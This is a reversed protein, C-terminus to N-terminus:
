YITVKAEYLINKDDYDDFWLTLQFEDSDIQVTNSLEYIDDPFFRDLETISKGQVFDGLSWPINATIDDKINFLEELLQISALESRKVEVLLSSNYIDIYSTASITIRGVPDGLEENLLALEVTEGQTLKSLILGLTEFQAIRSHQQKFKPEKYLNSELSFDELFYKKENDDTTRYRFSLILTNEQGKIVVKKQNNLQVAMKLASKVASFSSQRAVKNAVLWPTQDFFDRLPVMNLLTPSIVSLKSQVKVLKNNQFHLWHNRGYGTILEGEFMSLVVSPEGFKGIVQKYSMGITAGYIGNVLSLEKNTIIPHNLKAKTPPSFVVETQIAISTSWGKKVLYGQHNFPTAKEGVKNGGECSKILEAEYSVMYKVFHESDAVLYTETKMLKKVKKDILLLNDAGLSKAKIRLKKLLSLRTKDAFPRETTVKVKANDIIQYACNPYYDLITPLEDQAVVPPIFLLLSLLTVFIFKELYSM